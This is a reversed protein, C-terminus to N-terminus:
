LRRFSGIWEIGVRREAEGVKAPRLETLEFYKSTLLKLLEERLIVFPPNFLELKSKKAELIASLEVESAVVFFNGVLYGGSKLLEALVEVYEGRRAPDIACFFTHECVLDFSQSFGCELPLKFFDGKFVDLRGRVGAKAGSIERYREKLKATALSSWDVALVDLGRAVLELADAGSGCGPSLARLGKFSGIEQRLAELAEFLVTSPRSLEWPTDGSAFRAEWYDPSSVKDTAGSNM